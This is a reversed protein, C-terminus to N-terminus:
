WVECRESPSRVMASGQKCSFAAAFEPMNSLPGLVRFRPPAHPDTTAMLRLMEPRVNTCWGQAFGLFFQQDPSFGGIVPADKHARKFAAYALKVGGLDAINEGVALKGKLHVDDIAVYADFQKEICAARREFEASVDPSWWDTLNGRGDFQRGIDDFGHVLEHGITMGIGGFALAPAMRTSYLPPQLTGAPFLMENQVPSYSSSISSPTMHWESPDVPKDVKALRRRKEFAAASFLNGLYSKRDITLKSYDRWKEPYGIKNRVQGLKELARAGTAADMWGRGELSTRMAQEIGVVMSDVAHKGERGLTQEIFPRSLAEGMGAPTNLTGLGRDVARVCRRWRPPLSKAGTLIQRFRFDEEIFRAPLGPTAYRVLHWRLYASWDAAPLSEVMAGVVRIFDPQGVNVRTIGSLGLADLYSDWRFAPALQELAKRDLPHDFNRPDRLEVSTKSALALQREVRVVTAADRSADAAKDGLLRFMTAVHEEYRTLIDKKSADLYYDPEDLGLGGQWIDGMMRSADKLDVEADFSFPAPINITHLYLIAQTLSAADRIAAIRSLGPELPQTGATEIAAEDMCSAYFGGLKGAYPFDGGHTASRELIDRLILENKSQMVSFSRMWLSEDEPIPTAKM